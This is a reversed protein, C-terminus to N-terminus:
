SGIIIKGLVKTKRLAITLLICIALIAICEILVLGLNFGSVTSTLKNLVPFIPGSLIYIPGTNKSLFTVTKLGKGKIFPSLKCTSLIVLICGVLGITFRFIDNYLQGFIIKGDRIISFGSVYIYTDRNMFILLVIFIALSVPIALRHKAVPLSKEKIGPYLYGIIFFPYIYKYLEFKFCDPTIFSAVAGLIYIWISDKFFRRTISVIVTFILIAWLFWLIHISSYLYQGLFPLVDHVGVKHESLYTIQYLIFDWFLIPPIFSRIRKLIGSYWNPVTSIGSLYGSALAFLPMHFSYIIKYLTNNYFLEEDMYASGSGYQICHGLVVLIIAFAKILDIQANRSKLQSQTM